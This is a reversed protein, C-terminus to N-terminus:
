INHETRCIYAIEELVKKKDENSIGLIDLSEPNDHITKCRVVHHNLLHIKQQQSLTSLITVPHLGASEILDRLSEGDPYSWSIVKMGVCEAYAIADTTAKTNTIVWANTFNYKALLDDYRSKTYMPVRVDSRTGISNHFKAEIMITEHNKKAIIDIEHSICKGMLIQRVETSYGIQTLIESIFDEFPYGTPGLDMIAQKLSYKSRSYPYESTGLFDTVHSYIERSPINDYLKGNVHNIVDKQLKDPIGINRISSLVKKESFPELSKSAKLVSVM